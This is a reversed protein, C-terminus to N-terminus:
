ENIMHAAWNDDDGQAYGEYEAQSGPVTNFSYDVPANPHSRGFPGSTGRADYAHSYQVFHPNRVVLHTQNKVDEFSRNHAAADSRSQRTRKNAFSVPTKNDVM